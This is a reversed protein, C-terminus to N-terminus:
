KEDLHLLHRIYKSLNKSDKAKNILELKEAVTVRFIITESKNEKNIDKTM